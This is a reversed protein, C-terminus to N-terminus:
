QKNELSETSVRQFRIGLKTATTKIRHEYKGYLNDRDFIVIAPKKNTLAAFFIAQQISDLSSRKDLGGEYVYERTECDVKVFSRKSGYKYYHRVERKGGLSACFVDNYSDENKSGSFGIPQDEWPFFVAVLFCLLVLLVSIKFM